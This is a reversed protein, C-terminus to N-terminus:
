KNDKLANELQEIRKQQESVLKQQEIAYLTLEEVKQLLKVQLEAINMGSKEVEKASPINPLHGNSQIYNDVDQLKLLNYNKEFVFDPFGNVTVIVEKARITGAVDLLYQPAKIGIGLNGGMFFSSEASSLRVKEIISDKKYAHYMCFRTLLDGETSGGPKLSFVNHAYQDVPTGMTMNHGGWFIHNDDIGSDLYMNGRVDLKTGIWPTTTGIGVSGNDMISLAQPTTTTGLFYPLNNISRSWGGAVSSGNAYWGNLVGATGAINAFAAVEHGGVTVSNVGRVDLLNSPNPVGIGLKSTVSLEGIIKQNGNTQFIQANSTFVSCVTLLSVIIKKM